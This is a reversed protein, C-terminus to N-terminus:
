FDLLIEGSVFVSIKVTIEMDRLVYNSPSDCSAIKLLNEISLILLFLIIIVLNRFIAKLTFGSIYFFSSLM